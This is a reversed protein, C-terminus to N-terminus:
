ILTTRIWKSCKKVLCVWWAVVQCPTAGMPIVWRTLPFKFRRMAAARDAVTESGPVNSLLAMSFWPLVPFGMPVFCLSTAFGIILPRNLSPRTVTQVVWKYGNTPISPITYPIYLIYIYIYQQNLIICHWFVMSVRSGCDTVHHEHQRLIRRQWGLTVFLLTKDMCENGLWFLCINEVSWVQLTQDQIYTYHTYIYLLIRVQISTYVCEYTFIIHGNRWIGGSWNGLRSGQRVLSPSICLNACSRTAISWSRPYRIAINHSRYMYLISYTYQIIFTYIYIIIHWWSSISTTRTQIHRFIFM